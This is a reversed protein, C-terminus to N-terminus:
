HEKPSYKPGNVGYGAKAMGWGVLDRGDRMSSPAPTRRAWGFREAGQVYCARLAKSSFPKGSTPDTDAYNRVSWVM